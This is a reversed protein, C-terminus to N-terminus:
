VSTSTASWEISNLRSLLNDKSRVKDFFSFRNNMM